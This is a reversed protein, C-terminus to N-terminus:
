TQGFQASLVASNARVAKRQGMEAATVRL